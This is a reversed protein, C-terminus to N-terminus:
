QPLPQRAWEGDYHNDQQGLQNQLPRGDLIGMGVTSREAWIVVILHPVQWMYASDEESVAPHLNLM